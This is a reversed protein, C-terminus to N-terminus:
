ENPNKGGLTRKLLEGYRKELEAREAALKSLEPSKKALDIMNKRFGGLKSQMVMASDPVMYGGIWGQGEALTADVVFEPVCVRRRFRSGTPAQETCKIAYQREKNLENYKALFRDEAEDIQKRMETLKRTATITVEDDVPPGVNSTGAEEAFAPQSLAALSACLVFFTSRNM